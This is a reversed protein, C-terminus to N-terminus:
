IIFTLYTKAKIMTEFVPEAQRRITSVFRERAAMNRAHDKESGDSGLVLKVTLPMDSGMGEMAVRVLLIKAILYRTVCNACEVAEPKVHYTMTVCEDEGSISQGGLVHDALIMSFLDEDLDAHLMTRTFGLRPFIGCNRGAELRAEEDVAKIYRQARDLPIGIIAQPEETIFAEAIGEYLTDELANWADVYLKAGDASMAKTKDKRM